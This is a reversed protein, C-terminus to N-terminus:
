FRAGSQKLILQCRSHFLVPITAHVQLGAVKSASYQFPTPETGASPLLREIPPHITHDGTIWCLSLLKDLYM